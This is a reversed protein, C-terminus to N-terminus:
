LRPWLCLQLHGSTENICWTQRKVRPQLDSQLCCHIIVRVPRNGWLSTDEIIVPLWFWSDIAVATFLIVAVDFGAPDCDISNDYHQLPLQSYQTSMLSLTRHDCLSFWCTNVNVYRGFMLILERDRSVLVFVILCDFYDESYVIYLLEEPTRRRWM